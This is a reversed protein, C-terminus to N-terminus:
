EIHKSITYQIKHAIIANNYIILNHQSFFFMSFNYYKLILSNRPLNTRYNDIYRKKKYVRLSFM